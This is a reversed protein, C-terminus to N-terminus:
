VVGRCCPDKPVRCMACISHLEIIAIQVDNEDFVSLYEKWRVLEMNSPVLISKGNNLIFQTSWGGEQNDNFFDFLLKVKEDLFSFTEIDSYMLIDPPVKNPRKFIKKFFNFNMFYDGQYVPLNLNIIIFGIIIM